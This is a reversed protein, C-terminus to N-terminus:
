QLVRLYGYKPLFPDMEPVFDNRADVLVMGDVWFTLFTSTSQWNEVRNSALDTAARGEPRFAM